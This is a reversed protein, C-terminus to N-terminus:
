KFKLLTTGIGFSTQKLMPDYGVKYFYKKTHYIFDVGFSKFTTNTTLGVSLYKNYNNTISTNTTVTTPQMWKYEMRSSLIDNKQLTDKVTIVINSDKFEREVYHKAFYENIVFVTDIKVPLEVYITTDKLREYPEKIVKTITDYKYVTETVYEVSKKGSNRGIFYSSTLMVLLLLIGALIEYIKKM